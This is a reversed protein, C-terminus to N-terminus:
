TDVVVFLCFIFFSNLFDYLDWFYPLQIFENKLAAIFEGRWLLAVVVITGM